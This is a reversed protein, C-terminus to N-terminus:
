EKKIKNFIFDVIKNYIKSFIMQRIVIDILVSVIFISIVTIIFYEIYTNKSAFEQVSLLDNWLYKRVLFNDHILYVAFTSKSIINIINSHIKPLKITGLFLFIVFLVSILGNCRSINLFISNAILFSNEQILMILGIGILLIGFALVFSILFPIKIDKEIRKIYGGLLYLFFFWTTNNYFTDIEFFPLAILILCNGILLLKYKKLNINKIFDNFFYSCIIIFIYMTVFWYSDFIIPFFSKLLDGITFAHFDKLVFFIFIGLSYFWVQGLTKIVRKFSFEKNTIFYSSILMFINVGIKGGLSLIQLVLSHQNSVKTIDIGHVVFHHMIILIMAFIRLIEFKSDRIKNM